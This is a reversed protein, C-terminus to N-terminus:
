AIRAERAAAREAIFKDVESELFIRRGSSDRLARIHGREEHWRVVDASIGIRRATDSVSLLRENM